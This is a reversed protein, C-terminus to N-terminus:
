WKRTVDRSSQFVQKGKMSASKPVQYEPDGKGEFVEEASGKSNSEDANESPRVRKGKTAASEPVHYEPDGEGECVEEAAEESDSKDENESPRLSEVKREPPQGDQSAPSANRPEDM